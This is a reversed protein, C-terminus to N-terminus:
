QNNPSPWWTIQFYAAGSTATIELTWDAKQIYDHNYNTYGPFPYNESFLQWLANPISNQATYSEGTPATLKASIPGNGVEISAAIDVYLRTINVWPWPYSPTSNVIDAVPLIFCQTAGGALTLNTRGYLYTGAAAQNLRSCNGSSSVVFNATITKTSNMIITASSGSSTDGDAPVLGSWGSFSYGNNPSATLTVQTGATYSGGTSNVSGAATSPSVSVTLNRLICGANIIDQVRFQFEASNTFLPLMQERTYTGSNLHTVWNTFGAPDAGRRLIGNYLDEVYEQNSRNRLAYEQSQVFGLAIQYTLDKVAQDGICQANRMLAVWGDFGASDPFRNLFGRYLDNVLNDEPRTTGPGFIGEVYLKFEDSYAFQTILMNRTLGQALYNVWYDFGGPDPARNLFTQYLDTVFQGDTKNQLYYEQSNFFFKALAQFGERPDIGISVIREIESAWMGAGGPDPARGLVDNYYKTVLNQIATTLDLLRFVGSGNTGAYLTQPNQSDIALALVGLNTLGTNVPSWVGGANASRFVGGQYTGAYLIQPNQPDIALALVILDTLGTCAPSWSGGANASKFMGGGLTGAYVIQSNQPDIALVSVRLDTLGTNVPNWSGGANTSKFM